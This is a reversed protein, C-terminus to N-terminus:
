VKQQKFAAFAVIGVVAVLGIIAVWLLNYGSPNQWARNLDQLQQASPHGPKHTVAGEGGTAAAEGGAAPTAVVAAPAATTTATVATASATPTAVAAFATGATLALALLAALVFVAGATRLTHGIRM